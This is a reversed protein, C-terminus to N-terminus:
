EFFLGAQNVTFDNAEKFKSIQKTLNNIRTKRNKLLREYADHMITVCKDVKDHLSLTPPTQGSDAYEYFKKEQLMMQGPGLDFTTFDLYDLLDFFYLRPQYNEQLKIFKVILLYYSDIQLALLRKLLKTLSVINPSGETVIGAKINVPNYIDNSKIWIDGMSRLMKRGNSKCEFKATLANESSLNDTTRDDVYDAIRHGVEKGHTIDRFAENSVHESWFANTVNYIIEQTQADIM